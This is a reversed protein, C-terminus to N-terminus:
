CTHTHVHTSVSASCCDDPSCFEAPSTTAHECPDLPTWWSRRIWWSRCLPVTQFTHMAHMRYMECAATCEELPRLFFHTSYIAGSCFTLNWFETFKETNQWVCFCSSTGIVTFNPVSSDVTCGTEMGYTEGQDTCHHVHTLDDIHIYIRSTNRVIGTFHKSKM